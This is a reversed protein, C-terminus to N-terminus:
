FSGSPAFYEDVGKPTVLEAVGDYVLTFNGLEVEVILLMIHLAVVVVVLSTVFDVMLVLLSSFLHSCEFLNQLLRDRLHARRRKPFFCYCSRLEVTYSSAKLM